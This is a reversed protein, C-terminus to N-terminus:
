LFAEEVVTINLVTKVNIRKFFSLLAESIETVSTIKKVPFEDEELPVAWALSSFGEVAIHLHGTTIWQGAYPYCVDPVHENIIAPNQHRQGYDIRLLGYNTSDEQCHLSIKLLNKGSQYVKVLFSYEKDEESLLEYREEFPVEFVIDKQMLPQDYEIVRKPLQILYQSQEYNM